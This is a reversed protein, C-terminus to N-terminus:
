KNKLNLIQFLYLDPFQLLIFGAQDVIKVAM